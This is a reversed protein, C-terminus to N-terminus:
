LVVEQNFLIYVISVARLIQGKIFDVEHLDLLVERQDKYCCGEGYSFYTIDIEAEAILPGTKSWDNCYNTIDYYHQNEETIGSLDCGRTEAVTKNIEFNSMQELQDQTYM